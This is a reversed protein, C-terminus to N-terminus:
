NIREVYDKENFGIQYRHLGNIIDLSNNQIPFAYSHYECPLSLTFNKQFVVSNPLNLAAFEEACSKYSDNEVWFVYGIHDFDMRARRRNWSQKADEFTKYHQFVVLVDDLLGYPFEDTPIKGFMHFVIDKQYQNFDEPRIEILDVQVYHQLNNCFKSYQEPLIQLNITPSEFRLGLDHYISAGLCNNSIITAM